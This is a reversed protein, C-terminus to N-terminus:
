PSAEGKTAAQANDDEKQWPPLERATFKGGQSDPALYRLIQGPFENRRLDALMPEAGGFPAVLDILWPRDGSRWDEPRLRGGNELLRHEAEPSLFAWSAYSIPYQRKMYLKCQGLMLPPMVLWELDNIFHFRRHSSQMYLTVIPGLAPLRKIVNESLDRNTEPMNAVKGRNETTETTEITPDHRDTM